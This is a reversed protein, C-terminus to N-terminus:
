AFQGLVEFEVVPDGAAAAATPLTSFLVSGMLLASLTRKIKM